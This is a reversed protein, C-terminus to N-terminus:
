IELLGQRITYLTGNEDLSGTLLWLLWEDVIMLAEESLCYPSVEFSDKHNGVPQLHDLRLVSESTSGGIPLKDWIYQPYECRRIREVFEPKWGGRSGSPDIGYYPAVLVTPNTQWRASGTRLPRSVPQGGISLILAPRRKARHVTRVEGEFSPMGAVPLGTSRPPNRTKLTQVTFLARTHDTPSSRGEPALVLPQQDVHPLFVWALRGRCIDDTQRTNWWSSVLSQVSDEPYTPTAV